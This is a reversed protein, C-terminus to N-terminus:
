CGKIKKRVCGRALDQATSLAASNMKKALNYKKYLANKDGSSAAIYWWM